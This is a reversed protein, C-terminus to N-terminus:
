VAEAEPLREAARLRASRARPNERIESPGPRVPRRTLIRLRPPRGCVCVPLGPPCVCGKEAARLGRKVIRDELSHYALVVLRRGPRLADISAELGEELAALEDNVAIRLAQFVLTGPHHRRGRGISAEDIVRLLDSATRLRERQRAEAIRRALRRAGPLEGYARFCHELEEVSRTALFEEASTGAEPDMRMDLPVRDADEAAFAFGREPRDLQPSSVGLDLLVGDVRELGLDALVTGLARFSAHVLRVRTGFGALRGAAAALAEPDRDLAILLGGPGTRELIAAAHGGGGVTGDVIVADPRPDLLELCESLLVARHAFPRAVPTPRRRWGGIPGSHIPETGFLGPIGRRVTMERSRNTGGLLAGGETTRHEPSMGLGKRQLLM